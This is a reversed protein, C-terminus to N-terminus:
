ASNWRSVLAMKRKNLMSLPEVLRSFNVFDPWGGKFKRPWGLRLGLPHDAFRRGEESLKRFTGEQYQKLTIPRDLPYYKKEADGPNAHIAMEEWGVPLSGHKGWQINVRPRMGHARADNIAAEGGELIRGHFYTLIKEISNGDASYKVWILEHDCPDNDEPFDIDDEWFFHYAILRETPHMVAGFDKLPFFESPTTHVRPAFRRILRWQEPDPERPPDLELSRAYERSADDLRRLLHSEVGRRHHAEASNAAPPIEQGTAIVVSILLPIVIMHHFRPM